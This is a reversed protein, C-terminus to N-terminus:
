LETKTRAGDFRSPRRHTMTWGFAAGIIAPMAVTVVAGAWAAVSTLTEMRLEPAQMLATSAQFLVVAVIAVIVGAGMRRSRAIGVAVGLMVTLWWAVTVIFGYPIMQGVLTKDASAAWAAAMPAVLFALGSAVGRLYERRRKTM